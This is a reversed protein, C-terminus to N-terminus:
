YYSKIQSAHHGLYCPKKCAPYSKMMIEGGLPAERTKEHRIRFSRGQSGSLSGYYSKIQSTHNVLNREKTQLYSIVDDQNRRWPRKLCNKMISESLAVMVEEYQEM